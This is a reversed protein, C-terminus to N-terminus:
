RKKLDKKKMNEAKIHIDGEFGKYRNNQLTVNKTANFYFTNLNGSPTLEPNSRHVIENDKFMLGSTSTASLLPIDYVQFYNNEISINKHVWYNPFMAKTQPNIHIVYNNPASNFGCEIFRNERITVDTVAGSEYWGSADNEILIAHMGTRYYENNEILVKRRTTILTGRSITREFRSNKITVAPTWTTNEIANGVQLTAPVPKQMEVLMERESILKASKVVGEAFIRLSEAQLYAISDGSAFAM